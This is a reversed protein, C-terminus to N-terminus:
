DLIDRLRARARALRSMVTGTPVNLHAAAERYTLGELCVLRVMERQDPSLLRIRRMLDRQMLAEHQVAQCSLQASAQEFSPDIAGRQKQRFRDLAANRLITFLYAKPNEISKGEHALARVFCEQALDDADSRHGSLCRAYRQIASMHEEVAARLPM